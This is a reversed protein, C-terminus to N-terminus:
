DIDPSRVRRLASSRFDVHSGADNSSRPEDAAQTDVVVLSKPSRGILVATDLKLLGSADVDRHYDHELETYGKGGAADYFMMLLGIRSLDTLTKDWPSTIEKAEVFRRRTM